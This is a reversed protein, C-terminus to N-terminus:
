ANKAGALMWEGYARWVKDPVDSDEIIEWEDRAHHEVYVHEAYRIHGRPYTPCICFAVGHHEELRDRDKPRRETAVMWFDTPVNGYQTCHIIM